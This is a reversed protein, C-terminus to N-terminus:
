ASKDNKGFTADPDVESQPDGLVIAKNVWMSAQELNTLAVSRERSASLHGEIVEHLDSFEKRFLAIKEIGDPSPKHYAYSKIM